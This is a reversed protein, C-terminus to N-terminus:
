SHSIPCSSIAESINTCERQLIIRTDKPCNNTIRHLTSRPTQVTVTGTFGAKTALRFLLTTKFMSKLQNSLFASRTGEFYLKICYQIQVAMLVNACRGINNSKLPSLSLIFYNRSAVKAIITQVNQSLVRGETICVTRKVHNLKHKNPRQVALIVVYQCCVLQEFVLHSVTTRSDTM